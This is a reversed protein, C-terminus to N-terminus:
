YRVGYVSGGRGGGRQGVDYNGGMNPTSRLSWVSMSSSPVDETHYSPPQPPQFVGNCWMGEEIVGNSYHM